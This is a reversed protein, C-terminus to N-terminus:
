DPGRYRRMRKCEEIWNRRDEALRKIASSQRARADRSWVAKALADKHRRLRDLLEPAPRPRVSVEGRHEKVTIGLADLDALLRAVTEDM